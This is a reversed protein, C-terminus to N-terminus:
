FKTSTSVAYTCVNDEQTFGKSKPSIPLVAIVLVLFPLYDASNHQKEKQAAHTDTKVTARSNCEHVHFVICEM